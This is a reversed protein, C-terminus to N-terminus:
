RKLLLLWRLLWFLRRRCGWQRKVGGDRLFPQGEFIRMYRVNKFVLIMSRRLMARYCFIVFRITFLFPFKQVMYQMIEANGSGHFYNGNGGFHTEWEWEWPFGISVGNGRGRPIGNGRVGRYQLPTRTIALGIVQLTRMGSLSSNFLQCFCQIQHLLQCRRCGVFLHNIVTFM